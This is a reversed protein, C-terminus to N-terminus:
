TLQILIGLKTAASFRQMLVESDPQSGDEPFLIAYTDALFAQEKVKYKQQEIGAHKFDTALRANLVQDRAFREDRWHGGITTPKTSGDPKFVHDSIKSIIKPDLIGAQLGANITENLALRASRKAERSADPGGANREIMQLYAAGPTIKLGTVPNTQSLLSKFITEIEKAEERIGAKQAAVRQTRYFEADIQEEIRWAGSSEMTKASLSAGRDDDRKLKLQRMAEGLLVPDGSAHAAAFTTTQDGITIQEHKNREYYVGLQRTEQIAHNEAIAIKAYQSLGRIKRIVEDPVGDAKLQKVIGINSIDQRWEEAKINNVQEVIQPNLGYKRAHDKWLAQVNKKREAEVQALVKGGTQTFALLDKQWQRAKDHEGKARNVESLKKNWDAEAFMRNFKQRLQFNEARNQQELQVNERMAVLWRESQQTNWKLDAEMYAM